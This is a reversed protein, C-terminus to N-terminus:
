STGHSITRNPPANYGIEEKRSRRTMHQTQALSAFSPSFYAAHEGCLCENRRSQSSGVHTKKCHCWQHHICDRCLPYM